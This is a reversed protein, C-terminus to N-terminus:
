GMYDWLESVTQLFTSSRDEPDFLVGHMYSRLNESQHNEFALPIFWARNAEQKWATEQRAWEEAIVNATVCEQSVDTSNLPSCSTIERLCLEADPM